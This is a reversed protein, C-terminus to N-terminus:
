TNDENARVPNIKELITYFSPLLRAPSRDEYYEELWKLAADVNGVLTDSNDEDTPRLPFDPHALALECIYRWSQRAGRGWNDIFDSKSVSGLPPNEEITFYARFEEEPKNWKTGIPLSGAQLQTYNVVQAAFKRTREWGETSDRVDEVQYLLGEDHRVVVGSEIPCEEPIM